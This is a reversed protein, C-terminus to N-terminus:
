EWIVTYGSLWVPGNCPHMYPRRVTGKPTKIISLRREGTNRERLQVGDMIYVLRMKSRSFRNLEESSSLLNERNLQKIAMIALYHLVIDETVSM